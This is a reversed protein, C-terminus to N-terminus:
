FFQGSEWAPLSPEDNLNPLPTDGGPTAPIVQKGPSPAKRRPYAQEHVRFAQRAPCKPRRRGSPHVYLLGKTGLQNGVQRTICWSPHFLLHPYQIQYTFERFTKLVGTVECLKLNRDDDDDSSRVMPNENKFFKKATSESIVATNATFSGYQTVRSSRSPSCTLFSPEAFLFKAEKFHHRILSSAITRTAWTTCSAEDVIEPFGKEPRDSRRITKASKYDLKGNQYLELNVPIYEVTANFTDYHVSIVRLSL